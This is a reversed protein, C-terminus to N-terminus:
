EEAREFFESTEYVRNFAYDTAHLGIAVVIGTLILGVLANAIALMKVTKENPSLRRIWGHDCEYICSLLCGVEVM